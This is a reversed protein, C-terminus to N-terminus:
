VLADLSGNGFYPLASGVLFEVVLFPRWNPRIRDMGRHSTCDLDLRILVIEQTETRDTAAALGDEQFQDDEVM